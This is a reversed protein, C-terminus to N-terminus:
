ATGSGADKARGAGPKRIPGAWTIPDFDESPRFSVASLRGPPPVLYVLCTQQMEGAEFRGPFLGGGPCPEFEAKFPSAEILSDTGDVLYLPVARAGVDTEGVNEITAHVFYPTSRRTDQDLQWGAFSEAFSTRELRDVAVELVGVQDQRPQWAVVAPEHLDLNTGQPTLRVGDPVPLYHDPDSAPDSPEGAAGSSAAPDDPEQTAADTSSGTSEGAGCATVAGSALVVSAALVGIRHRPSTVRDNHV